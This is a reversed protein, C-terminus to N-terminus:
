NPGLFKRFMLGTMLQDIASERTHLAAINREIEIEQGVKKGAEIFFDATKDATDQEEFFLDTRKGDTRIILQYITKM